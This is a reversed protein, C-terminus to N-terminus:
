GIAEMFELARMEAWSHTTKPLSFGCHGGYTPIELYVSPHAALLAKPYCEEGLFPDNAANVILCPTTIKNIVTLPSAQEYYDEKNSYGHMPATFYDDIDAFSKLQSICEENLKGPFQVAKAEFKPILTRKFNKFYVTNPFKALQEASSQLSLPASFSVGCQIRKHISYSGLYNLILAGGMSFGVLYIKHYGEILAKQIIREIDDTSGHHYLRFTNNMEGGCSRHNWALINYGRDFFYDSASNLYTRRSDGELGHFLIVLKDKNNQKRWDLTLFDGDDTNIKEREYTPCPYKNIKAPIITSLHAHKRWFSSAQYNSQSIIPM